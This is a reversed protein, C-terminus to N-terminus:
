SKKLVNKVFLKTALEASMDKLILIISNEAFLANFM